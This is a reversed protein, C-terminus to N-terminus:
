RLHAFAEVRPNGRRHLARDAALDPLYSPMEAGELLLRPAAGGIVAVEGGLSGLIQGIELLVSRVAATTRDGEDAANQPEIPAM